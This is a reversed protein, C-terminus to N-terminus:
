GRGEGGALSPRVQLGPCVGCASCAAQRCDPTLLGAEARRDEDQLFEKCVGADLHDWPLIETYSRQRNAYFDPELGSRRFAELWLDFRFHEAWGDFRCGLEWATKVVAALRRDGRAFVGELWSTRADHWHLELGRGKLHDALLRQRREVEELSLQPRWQFPTHPKPVFVSVSVSVQVAHPRQKWIGKGLNLVERALEAIGIIDEDTETPLGMMFYLKLRQWGGRFAAEAASLMDERTVGKNIVRRMRETGAEPAFTLSSKRGGQFREALDAPFADIRLSPLSINVHEASYCDMLRAVLQRIESYDSSSLSTLSVEGYGTQKLLKDLAKELTPVSRERVPRYIMGAQCFRCGRTCGRFLELMIRDHVIDTFPVIQQEPIPCQELDAVIRKTVRVPVVEAARIGALTGDQHYSVEYFEPVYVGPIKSLEKKVQAKSLGARKARALVALIELIAEEGEGLFFLDFFEAIPEPNYAGPGGAILLPHESGRERAALPIGGLDMMNLINTYSLEYQLTFGVLDFEALSRRSELSFLPKAAKRLEDELDIWPAYVREALYDPHQNIQDYLLRLGLHSQGVEYLDPFALAVRVQAKTWDKKVMGWEGGTYRSPKEVRALIEEIQTM